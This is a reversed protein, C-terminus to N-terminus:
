GPDDVYWGGLYQVGLQLADGCSPVWIDIRGDWIVGGRDEVSLAGWGPLHVITGFALEPGSAVVGPGAWKGSATLGRDCYFTARWTRWHPVGRIAANAAVLAAVKHLASGLPPVPPDPLDPALAELPEGLFLATARPDSTSWAPDSAPTSATSAALVWSDSSRRLPNSPTTPEIGVSGEAPPLAQGLLTSPQAPQAATRSALAMMGAAQLM